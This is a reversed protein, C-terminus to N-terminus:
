VIYRVGKLIYLHAVNMKVVLEGNVYSRTQVRLENVTTMLINRAVMLTVQVMAAQIEIVISAIFMLVCTEMCVFNTERKPHRDTLEQLLPNRGIQTSILVPSIQVHHEMDVCRRTLQRKSGIHITSLAILDVANVVMDASLALGMNLPVILTPVAIVM